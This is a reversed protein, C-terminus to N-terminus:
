GDRKFFNNSPRLPHSQCFVLINKKPIRTEKEALDRINSVSNADLGILDSSVLTIKNQGDDLVLIKAFLPDHIGHSPDKRNGYGTLWTRIPPTINVKTVGIKLQSM